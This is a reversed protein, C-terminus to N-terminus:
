AGSFPEARASLIRDIRDVLTSGVRSYEINTDMRISSQHNVLIRSLKWDPRCCYDSDASSESRIKNNHWAIYQNISQNIIYHLM